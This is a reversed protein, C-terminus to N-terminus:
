SVYKVPRYLSSPCKPLWERAKWKVIGGEGEGREEERQTHSNTHTHTHTNRQNVSTISFVANILQTSGM